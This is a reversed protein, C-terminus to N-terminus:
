AKSMAGGGSGTRTGSMDGLLSSASVMTRFSCLAMWAKAESFTGAGERGRISSSISGRRKGGDLGSVVVPISVMVEARKHLHTRIDDISDPTSASKSAAPAFLGSDSFAEIRAPVASTSMIMRILLAM